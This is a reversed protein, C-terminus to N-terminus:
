IFALLNTFRNHLIILSKFRLKFLFIFNLNLIVILYILINLTKLYLEFLIKLKTLSINM